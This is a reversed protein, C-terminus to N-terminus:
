KKLVKELLLEKDLKKTCFFWDKCDLEEEMGEMRDKATNCSGAPPIIVDDGAGPVTGMDWNGANNWSYNVDGEWFHTAQLNFTFFVFLFTALTLYSKRM